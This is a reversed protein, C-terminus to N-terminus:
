LEGDRFSGSELQRSSCYSSCPETELCWSIWPMRLIFNAEHAVVSDHSVPSFFLFRFNPQCRHCKGHSCLSLCRRKSDGFMRPVPHTLITGMDMGSQILTCIARTTALNPSANFGLCGLSDVWVHHALSRETQSLFVVYIGWSMRNSGGCM